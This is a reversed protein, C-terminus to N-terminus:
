KDAHEQELKQLKDELQNITDLCRELVASQADFEERTVLNMKKLASEILRRLQESSANKFEQGHEFTKNLEELIQKALLDIM